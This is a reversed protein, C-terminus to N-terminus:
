QFYEVIVVGPAGPGAGGGTTFNSGGGGGGAGYGAGSNGSILQSPQAAGGIGMGMFASAGAGGIGTNSSSNFSGPNGLQGISSLILSGTISSGGSGGLAYPNGGSTGGGGGGVSAYSGFSTTGGNGGNSGSTGATGAAGITVTIASASVTIVGSAVAGSGGGGGGGSASTGGGGGGGGGVITLKLKTVGAPPTWSTSATFVQVTPFGSGTAATTQTTGDPFKIGGSTSQITGAAAINGNVALKAAPSTVGIGVNGISSVVMKTTPATTTGGTVTNFQIQTGYNLASFDGDAKFVISAGRSKDNVGTGWQGWAIVAGLNDGDLIGSPAAFSGRSRMLFIDAEGSNNNYSTVNLSPNRAASGSTNMIRVGYDMDAQQVDINFTPAATGVGVNGSSYNVHAGNVQWAIASSPLRANAITGSAIAAADISIATCAWTGTPSVFTLTSGAACNAPMNSAKLLDGGDSLNASNVLANVWSTGNYKLFQGNSLSTISLSTGKLSAITPGPYNGSLDGSAAGSPLSSASTWALNGSADASSLVQGAAPGSTPFNLSYNATLGAPSNLEVYRTSSGNYVRHAPSSLSTASIGGTTSMSTSGGIIGSTIANGSVKGSTSLSPIDSESLTSGSTVRGYPDTIVKTYSGSTGVTSLGASVCTFTTGDAKLVEGTACTPLDTKAFAKVTPDAESTVPTVASWTSGNWGLTSGASMAPLSTGNLQGSRTYQTSSGNILAVLENFNATSLASVNGATGSDAVRVLANADFNAIKETSFAYPVSSIDIPALTHSSGDNFTIRLKRGHNPSPSYTTGVSCSLGSFNVNNDFSTKLAYPGLNTGTGVAFEFLGHSTSLDLLKTESHLICNSTTPDMVDVTFNISSGTVPNNSPDLLRGSVVFSNTAFSKASFLLIM